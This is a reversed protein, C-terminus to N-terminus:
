LGQAYAYIEPEQSLNNKAKKILDIAEAQRLVGAAMKDCLLQELPDTIQYVTKHQPWLNTQNNSGGMCLPIYHDIKFDQRNMSEIEFGLKHDYDSIIARKLDSAVNRQCYPIHEPYRYSDPTTCVSGPTMQDNPGTPFKGDRTALCISPVAFLVVFLSSFLSKM